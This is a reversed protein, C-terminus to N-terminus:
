LFVRSNRLKLSASLSLSSLNGLQLLLEFILKGFAVVEKKGKPGPNGGHAPSIPLVLICKDIIMKGRDFDDRAHKRREAFSEEVSDFGNFAHKLAEFAPHSCDFPIKPFLVLRQFCVEFGADLFEVAEFRCDLALPDCPGEGSGRFDGFESAFIAEEFGLNGDELVLFHM